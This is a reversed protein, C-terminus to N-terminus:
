TTVVIGVASRLMELTEPELSVNEKISCLIKKRNKARLEDPDSKIIGVLEKVDQDSASVIEIRDMDFMIRNKLWNMRIIGNVQIFNENMNENLVAIIENVDFLMGGAKGCTMCVYCKIKYTISLQHYKPEFRTFCNSCLCTSPDPDIVRMCVQMLQSAFKAISKNKSVIAQELYDLGKFDPKIDNKPNGAIASIVNVKGFSVVADIAAAQVEEHLDSLKTLIPIISRTDGLNTLAHITESRVGTEPDNLMALLSDVAKMDGLMGLAKCAAWRVRTDDNLKQIIPDVARKDGLMGLAQCIAERVHWDDHRLNQILPDLARLDGLQGLSKFAAFRVSPSEDNMHVLLVDVARLDGLKGFARCIARRLRKYSDVRELMPFVARKDGIDGLADCAAQQVPPHNDDLLPILFPVSNEDRIKGLEKCAAERRHWDTDQLDKILNELKAM